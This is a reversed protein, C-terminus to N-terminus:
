VRMPINKTWKRELGISEGYAIMEEWSEDCTGCLQFSKNKMIVFIENREVSFIHIYWATKIEKELIPLLTEIMDVDFDYSNIHWLKELEDPMDEIRSGTKYQEIAKLFDINELSELIIACSYKPVALGELKEIVAKISDSILQIENATEIEYFENLKLAIEM